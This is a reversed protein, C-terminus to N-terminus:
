IETVEYAVDGSNSGENTLKWADANPRIAERIGGAGSVPAMAVTRPVGDTSTYLTADGGGAVSVTGSAVVTPSAHHQDPGVNSLITHDPTHHQNATVNSLNAHDTVGVNQWAAGDYVKQKSNATDRWLAGETAYNPSDPGVANTLEWTGAGKNWTYRETNNGNAGGSPNIWLFGDAPNAPESTQRSIFRTSIGTSGLTM